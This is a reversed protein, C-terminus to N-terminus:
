PRVRQRACEMVDQADPRNWFTGYVIICDESPTEFGRLKEGDDAFIVRKSYPNVDQERCWQRFELFNGACIIRIPEEAIWEGQLLRERDARPLTDLLGSYKVQGGEVITVVDQSEGKGVDVGYQAKGENTM